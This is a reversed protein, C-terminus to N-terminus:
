GLVFVDARNGGLKWLLLCRFHQSDDVLELLVIVYLLHEMSEGLEMQGAASMGVVSVLM